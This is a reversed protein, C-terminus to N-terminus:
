ETLRDVFVGDAGLAAFRAAQAPRKLGWAFLKLGAAHVTEVTQPRVFRHYVNIADVGAASAGRVTRRLAANPIGFLTPYVLHTEPWRARWAAITPLRWYTLWLRPLADYRRALDVVAGAADPDAMDLSLEFDVGCRQWLDDLSPIQAPLDHRQLRRIARSRRLELSHVLVPVGAATLRVDSELGEAGRRLAEAFADLTNGANRHTPAGRHAFRILRDSTM